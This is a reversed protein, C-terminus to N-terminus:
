EEDGDAGGERMDAGCNGCFNQWGDYDWINKQRTKCVPCTAEGCDHIIWKGRVMPRVDAPPITDLIEEVVNATELGSADWVLCEDFEGHVSSIAAQRSIYDDMKGPEPLREGVPIWQMKKLEEVAARILACGQTSCNHEHGCGLCILSGTEVMMRKLATILEKDTM